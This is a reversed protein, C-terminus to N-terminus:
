RGIFRGLIGQAVGLFTVTVGWVVGVSLTVILLIRAIFYGGQLFSYDWMILKPLGNMMFGLGLKPIGWVGAGAVQITNYGTLDSIINVETTGWYIGEFILCIFNGVFFVFSVFMLQKTSLM